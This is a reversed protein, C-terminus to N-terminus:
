FMEPALCGESTELLVEKVAFEHQMRVRGVLAELASVEVVQLDKIMSTKLQPGCGPLQDKLWNETKWVQLVAVWIDEGKWNFSLFEMVQGYTRRM